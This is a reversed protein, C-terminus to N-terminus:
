KSAQKLLKLTYLLGVAKTILEGVILEKEGVLEATPEETVIVPVLKSEIAELLMTNKPLEFAVM